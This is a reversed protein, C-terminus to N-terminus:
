FYYSFNFFRKPACCIFSSGSLDEAVYRPVPSIVTHTFAGTVVGSIPIRIGDKIHLTPGTPIENFKELILYGPGTRLASLDDVIVAFSKATSM